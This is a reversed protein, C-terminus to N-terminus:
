PMIQLANPDNATLRLDDAHLMINQMIHTLHMGDTQTVAGQVGEAVEDTDNVYLSFLLPSPPCGQKEGTKSHVRATKM